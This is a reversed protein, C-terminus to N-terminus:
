GELLGPFMVAESNRYKEELSINQCNIDVMVGINLYLTKNTFNDYCSSNSIVLKNGSFYYNM